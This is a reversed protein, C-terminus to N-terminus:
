LELDFRYELQAYVQSSNKLFDYPALPDDSHILRAGSSIKLRTTANWTIEPALLFSNLPTTASANLAIIVNDISENTVRITGIYETKEGGLSVQARTGTFESYVKLAKSFIYDAGLGVRTRTRSSLAPDSGITIRAPAGPEFYTFLRFVASDTAYSAFAGLTMVRPFSERLQVIGPGIPLAALSPSRNHGRYALATVELADWVRHYRLGFEVESFERPIQGEILHATAPAAQAAISEYFGYGNPGAPFRHSHPLPVVLWELNGGALSHNVSLALVPVITQSPNGFAGQRLDLPTLFDSTTPSLSDVWDILQLGAKLRVSDGLYDAYVQRFEGELMEDARVPGAFRNQLLAADARVRGEVVTSFRENFPTEQTLLAEYRNHRFDGSDLFLVDYNTLKVGLTAHDAAGATTMWFLGFAALLRV